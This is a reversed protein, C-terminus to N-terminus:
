GGKPGYKPSNWVRAHQHPLQEQTRAEPKSRASGRADLCLQATGEPGHTGHRM